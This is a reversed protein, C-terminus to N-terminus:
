DAPRTPPTIRFLLARPPQGGPAIRTILTLADGASEILTAADLLPDGWRRKPDQWNELMELNFYAYRYGADYAHTTWPKNGPERLWGSLPGRDWVTNWTPRKPPLPEDTGLYLPAAEGIMLIDDRVDVGHNFWWAFPLDRDFEERQRGTLSALLQNHADGTMVAISGIEPMMSPRIQRHLLGIPLCTIGIACMALLPRLAPATTQIRNVILAGFCGAAIGFPVLTPLLFRPQAHTFLLWALLCTVTMAGCAFGVRRMAKLRWAILGGVSVVGIYPALAWQNLTLGAGNTSPVFRLFADFIAAPSAGGRHGRNWAAVQEDTWPGTGFFDTLFPFVPNGTRIAQEVLWPAILILGVVPAIGHAAIFNMRTRAPALIWWAVSVPLVALFVSSLKAGACAALLVAISVGLRLSQNRTAIMGDATRDVTIRLIAAAMFAVSAADNYAMSGTVILWPVSLCFVIGATAAYSRRADPTDPDTKPMLSAASLGVAAAGGVAFVAHLLQASFVSKLVGGNLLAIHLYAHEVFGPLRSYVNHDLGGSRGIAVWEKPLQLHYSLIDYGGHESAWLIGPPMMAALIMLGIAPAAFIIGISVGTNRPRPLRESTTRYPVFWGSLGLAILIWAASTGAHMRFVASEIAMMLGAGLLGCLLLNSASAIADTPEGSHHGVDVLPRILRGLGFAAAVWIAVPWVAMALAILSGLPYGGSIRVISVFVALVFLGALAPWFARSAVM